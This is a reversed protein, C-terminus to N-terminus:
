AKERDGAELAEAAEALEVEANEQATRASQLAERVRGEAIATARTYIRTALVRLDDAMATVMGELDQQFEPPLPTPQAAREAQGADAQYAEWVSRIRTLNGGGLHMRIASATLRRQPQAAQLQKGAAIIQEETYEVPRM